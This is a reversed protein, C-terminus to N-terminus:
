ASIHLDKFKEKVLKKAKKEDRGGCEQGDPSEACTLRGIFGNPHRRRRNSYAKEAALAQELNFGAAVYDKMRKDQEDQERRLCADRIIENLTVSM